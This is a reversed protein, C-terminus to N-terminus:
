DLNVIKDFIQTTTFNLNVKFSKKMTTKMLRKIKLLIFVTFLLKIKNQEM